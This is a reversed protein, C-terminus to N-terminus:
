NNITSLIVIIVIVFLGMFASLHIMYNKCWMERKLARSKNNFFEADSCISEAKESISDLTDERKYVKDINSKLIDKSEDLTLRLSHLDSKIFSAYQDGNESNTTIDNENLYLDKSESQNIITKDSKSDDNSDPSPSESSYAVYETNFRLNGSISNTDYYVSSSEM